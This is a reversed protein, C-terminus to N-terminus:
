GTVTSLARTAPQFGPLLGEIAARPHGTPLPEGAFPALRVARLVCYFYVSRWQEPAPNPWAEVLADWFASPFYRAYAYGLNLLRDAALVGEFDVLGAIENDSNILINELSIDGWTLAPRGEQRPTGTRAIAEVMEATEQSWLRKEAVAKLGERFSAACFEDLSAFRAHDAALLDGYGAVPIRALAELRGVLNAALRKLAAASLTSLRDVLPTGEIMRYVVYQMEASPGTRSDIVVEPTGVGAQCCRRLLDPEYEVVHARSTPYFRVIYREGNPLRTAYKHTMVGLSLKDVSEPAVAM